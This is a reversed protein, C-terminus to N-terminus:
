ASLHRMCANSKSVSESNLTLNGLIKSKVRERSLTKLDCLHILYVIMASLVRDQFLFYGIIKRFTFSRKVSFVRDAFTFIIRDNLQFYVIYTKVFIETRNKVFTLRPRRIM